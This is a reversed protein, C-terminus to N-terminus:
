LHGFHSGFLSRAGSGRRNDLRQAACKQHLTRTECLLTLVLSGHRPLEPAGRARHSYKVERRRKQTTRLLRAAAGVWAM